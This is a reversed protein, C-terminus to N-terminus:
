KNSNDIIVDYPLVCNYNIPTPPELIFRPPGSQYVLTLYMRTLLSHTDPGQIINLTRDLTPVRLGEVGECFLFKLFM